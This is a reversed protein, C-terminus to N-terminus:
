DPLNDKTQPMRQDPPALGGEVILGLYTAGKMRHTERIERYADSDYWAHIAQVSPFEHVTVGEVPGWKGPELVEVPTYAALAKASHGALTAGIKSWYTELERRDFVDQCIFVLYASM